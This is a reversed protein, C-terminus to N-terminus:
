DDDRRERRGRLERRGERRDDFDRDRRQERRYEDRERERGNRLDISPGRPGIEISQAVSPQASVAAGALALGATLLASLVIKSM